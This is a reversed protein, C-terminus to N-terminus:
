DGKLRKVTELAEQFAAVYNNVDYFFYHTAGVHNQSTKVHDSVRVKFGKADNIIYLSSASKVLETNDDLVEAFLDDADAFYDRMAQIGAELSASRMVSAKLLAEMAEPNTERVLYYSECDATMVSYGDFYEGDDDTITTDILVIPLHQIDELTVREIGSNTYQKMIVEEKAHSFL